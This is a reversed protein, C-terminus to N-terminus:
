LTLGPAEAPQRAGWAEAEDLEGSRLLLAPSRGKEEWRAALGGLRTHNKIWAIDTKLAKALADIQREFGPSEAYEGTFFVYNVKRIGEPVHLNDVEAVVVPALRKNLKQVQEIEWGCWNSSVSAASVVYVVSDAQRIFGLIERQWEEALPLDRKDIVAEIDRSELASVLKEAFPLDRRSYSIFVKPKPANKRAVHPTSVM